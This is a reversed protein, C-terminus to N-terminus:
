HLQILFYSVRDTKLAEENEFWHKLIGEKKSGDPAMAM